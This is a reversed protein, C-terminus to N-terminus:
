FNHSQSSSAVPSTPQPLPTLHPRENKLGVLTHKIRKLGDIHRECDSESMNEPKRFCVIQVRTLRILYDVYQKKRYMESRMMGKERKPMRDQRAIDRQTVTSQQDAPFTTPDPVSLYEELDIGSFLNSYTARIGNRFEQSFNPQVKESLDAIVASDEPESQPLPPEDLVASSSEM